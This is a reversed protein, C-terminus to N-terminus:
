RTGLMESSSDSFISRSAIRRTISTGPTFDATDPTPRPSDGASGCPWFSDVGM